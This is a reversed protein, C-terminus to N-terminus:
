RADDLRTPIEGPMFEKPIDVSGTLAMGDGRGLHICIEVFDGTLFDGRLIKPGPCPSVKGREGHALELM